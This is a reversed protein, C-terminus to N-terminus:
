AYQAPRTFRLTVITGHQDTDVDVDEALAGMLLHGRGRGAFFGDIGTQWSGSDSISILLEAERVAAELRVVDDPGASGHDVANALAEGVGLLMGERADGDIGLDILWDALRHRVGRLEEPRARFAHAFLQRSQGCTRTAVLAVDDAAADDVLAGFIAQKLRRLPLSWNERMVSRLRELGAELPEGRREVLGDTYLLLLSGGPLAATAAPVRREATEIGLPWSGGNELYEVQGDPTVLLPPPHGACLYSMTEAETDLLAFAVTACRAGPVHKAYRDLIGVASSADTAQLAAVGLAARLQGMTTAAPLGRGVVDGVAVALRGEGVEVADYWDGGIQLGTDAARYRARVVAATTRVDLTLLGLQLTQAVSRELQLVEIREITRVTLTAVKELMAMRNGGLNQPSAWGVAIAGIPRGTAGVLPLSIFSALQATDFDDRMAPFSEAILDPRAAISPAGTRV